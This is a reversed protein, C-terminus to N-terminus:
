FRNAVLNTCSSEDIMVRFKDEAVVKLGIKELSSKAVLNSCSGEDIM